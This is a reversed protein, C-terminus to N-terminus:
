ASFNPTWHRQLDSVFQQVPWGTAKRSAILHRVVEQRSAETRIYKACYSIPGFSNVLVSPDNSTFAIGCIELGIHELLDTKTAITGKLLEMSSILSLLSNVQIVTQAHVALVALSVLCYHRSAAHCAKLMHVTPLRSLYPLKARSFPEFHKPLDSIWDEVNTLMSEWSREATESTSGIMTNIIRGLVLSIANLQDQDSSANQLRPIYDLDMKLPCDGFLSFTIDERLYNWFGSLLLGRSPHGLLDRLQSALSFAGMLHRNPDRDEALIEYSRLLCTTALAVGKGILVDEPGLDILRRICQTHYTEAITRASSATTQSVHMAAVAVVACFLLPEDLAFM